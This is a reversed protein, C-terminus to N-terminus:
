RGRRADIWDYVKGACFVIACVIMGGGWLYLVMRHVYSLLEDNM